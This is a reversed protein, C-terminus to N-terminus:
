SLLIAPHPYIFSMVQRIHAPATESPGLVVIDGEVLLNWPVNVLKSDRYTSVTTISSSPPCSRELYTDGQIYDLVILFM